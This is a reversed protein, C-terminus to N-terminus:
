DAGFLSFPAWYYASRYKERLTKSAINVSDSIAVGDYINKYLETMWETTSRDSVLWHSGIVNRAGMELLCRILGSSEEGSLISQHATQCAALTVLNVKCKKLRLDAGFLRSDQLKLFSYAPNDSQHHAHGIYHWAFWEGEDPWDSRNCPNFVSINRNLSEINSLEEQAYNIDSIDGVFVATETSKIKMKDAYMYHEITPSFIISHNDILQRGNYSIAAWPLNSMLGDLIVLVNEERQDIELPAWIFDGLDAYLKREEDIASKLVKDGDILIRNILMQWLGHYGCVKEYGNRYTHVKTEKGRHIFAIIDNEHIHFQVIPMRNSLSNLKKDFMDMRSYTRYNESDLLLISDRVKKQYKQIKNHSGLYDNKRTESITNLQGSLVSVQHSLEALSQDANARESIATFSKGSAAWIGATRYRDAWLAAQRPNQDLNISVLQEYPNTRGRMFSARLEIPPLKSRVVDLVNAAKTWFNAASEMEGKAYQRDGLFTQWRALLHPVSEVSRNKKLREYAKKDDPHVTIFYLDCIAEWIPLQAKNFLKRISGYAKSDIPKNYLQLEFLKVAAAFGKNGIQTFGEEARRLAKVAENKHKCGFAAKARFFAAKSSEYTLGLKKALKESDCASHYADEFLNLGLYSEARDLRCLMVGKNQGSELYQKECKKLLILAHHYDGKLMSLWGMGYECETVYMQYGKEAFINKARNYFESAKEFELMQVYTNSLNYYTLGLVLRQKGSKEFQVRAAEYQKMASLHKDQRHLLNAYNVKTKAAEDLDNYKTFIRISNNASRRAENIKDQYMYVDILMRDIKAAEIPQSKSLAKAELYAKEAESYKGSFNLTWGLARLAVALDVGDLMRALKVFKRGLEVAKPLSNQTESRVVRDCGATLEELDFKGAKGSSLFSVIDKSEISSKVM